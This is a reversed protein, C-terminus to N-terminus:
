KTFYHNCMKSHSYVPFNEFKDKEWLLDDFKIKGQPKVVAHAGSGVNIIRANDCAKVSDLLLNTLLFVGVHNVGYHREHGQVTLGREM